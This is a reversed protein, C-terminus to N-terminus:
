AAARRAEDGQTNRLRALLEIERRKAEDINRDKVVGYPEIPWTLGLKYVAIGISRM